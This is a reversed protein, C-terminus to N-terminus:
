KKNQSDEEEAEIPEIAEIAFVKDDSSEVDATKQKEPETTAKSKPKSLEKSKTESAEESKSSSTDKSAEVQDSSSDVKTTAPEVKPADSDQALAISLNFTCLSVLVLLSQDLKFRPSQLKSFNFVM